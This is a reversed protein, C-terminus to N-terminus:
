KHKWRAEAEMESRNGDGTEMESRNGDRGVQMENRSENEVEM